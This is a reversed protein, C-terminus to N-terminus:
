RMVGGSSQSGPPEHLRNIVGMPPNAGDKGKMLPDLIENRKRVPYPPIYRSHENNRSARTEVGNDGIDWTM